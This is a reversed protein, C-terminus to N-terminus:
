MSVSFCLMDESFLVAVAEHTIHQSYCGMHVKVVIYLYFWHMQASGAPLNLHVPMASSEM